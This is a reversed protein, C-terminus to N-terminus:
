CKSYVEDTSEEILCEKKKMYDLVSNSKSQRSSENWPECGTVM